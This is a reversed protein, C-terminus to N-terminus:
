GPPAFGKLLREVEVPEYPKSLCHDFGARTTEDHDTVAVLCAAELGPLQRLRRGVEPDDLGPLGLALLVVDPRSLAAQFSATYGEGAASVEYGLNGLHVRLNARLNPCDDVVLVRLPRSRIAEM